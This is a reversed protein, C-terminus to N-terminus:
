FDTARIISIADRFESADYDDPSVMIVLTEAVRREQTALVFTSLVIAILTLRPAAARGLGAGWVPLAVPRLAGFREVASWFGTLSQWIGEQSMTIVNNNDINSGVVIYAKRDGVPVVATTGLAFRCTKGAKKAPDQTVPAIGQEKLSREIMADFLKHDGQYWKDILKAKLSRAGIVQPYATDFCDSSLVAIDAPYNLIRGVRLEVQVHTVRSRKVYKVPPLGRFLSWLSAGIIALLFLRDTPKVTDPFFFSGLELLLWVAGLFGLFALATASLADRTAFGKIRRWFM